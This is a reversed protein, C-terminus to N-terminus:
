LSVADANLLDALDPYNVIADQQADAIDEETIEALRDLDADSLQLPNTLTTLKPNPENSM